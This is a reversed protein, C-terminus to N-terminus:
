ARTVKGNVFFLLFLIIGTKQGPYKSLRSRLFKTPFSKSFTANRSKGFSFPILFFKSSVPANAAPSVPLPDASKPSKLEFRSNSFALRAISDLCNRTIGVFVRLRFCYQFQKTSDRRHAMPADDLPLVCTKPVQM